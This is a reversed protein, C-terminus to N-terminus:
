KLLLPKGSLLSKIMLKFESINSVQIITTIRKSGSDKSSSGCLYVKMDKSGNDIIIYRDHAKKGTKIFTIDRDPYEVKFDDYESKRLPQRGANDSIITVSVSKKATALHQLTKVGIYDDIVVISKKAKKYIKQYAVDAKFPQGDLILIEEANVSSDFLKMFDSLDAKTVMNDKIEKIDADHKEINEVLSTYDRQALLPRNEVLYDKMGKFLRVLTKSQKTALEGRLVTMLMYLGQETFAFPLKRRGGWSSTSKKSMLNDFEEKTLQFMFDSDFKTANNKVQENFRTTTYGYIEALEFDLMVQQGRIVYIKERLLQEDAIMIENKVALMREIKGDRRDIINYKVLSYLQERGM